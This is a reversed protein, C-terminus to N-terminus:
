RKLTITGRYNNAANQNDELYYYYIGEPLQEGAFSGDWDNSYNAAKDFVLDGNASFINLRYNSYLQVNEISWTDNRGDGNPSFYSAVPLTQEIQDEIIIEVQATDKLGAADSVEVAILYNDQVEYDFSRNSTLLGTAADIRFDIVSNLLKFSLSDGADIDSAVVQGVEAGVAANEIVAFLQAEITPAENGNELNIIVAKELSLGAADTTRLRLSYSSQSEFDFNIMNQLENGAIMFSANDDDGSGAVLEYTFSDNKDEDVTSLLAIRSGPLDNENATTDSLLIDSPADNQNIIRITYASEVFLGDQDTSRIRVSRRNANNFALVSDVELIAGNIRFLANDASGQGPVLTYTHNDTADVDQTAINAVFSGIPSAELISDSSISLGTPADNTDLVNLTLQRSYTAGAQDRTQVEIIYLNKTEFDIPVATRLENGSIIFSANDNSAQNAFSYSFQDTSDKDETSLASVTSGVAVNENFSNPTLVINTPADNSNTINITFNQEVSLGGQDTSRLRINHVRQNNYDFLVNSKLENSSIIFNGNDDDGSGPVLQYTFTQSPDIDTTNFTGITTNLVTNEPTSANSISIASPPDNVDQVFILFEREFWKNDQDSTRLRVSLQNKVLVDFSANSFLSDSSIIFSGNDTDGTGPVLTYTFNDVADEDTTRLLGIFEGAAQKEDVSNASLLVDTPADNTDKVNVFLQRSYTGGNGDDTQVQIFYVNKAEFDLSSALRLEDGAIIFNANDNTSLNVFSYTHNDMADADVTSFRGVSSNAPLNENISDPALSIDTPADNANTINIVFQAEATDGALDTTRVRINYATQLNVNYTTNTKLDGNQIYFSANDADGAGVVLAYTHNDVTDPDQTSFSGVTTNRSVDEQISNNDLTLTTPADNANIINITFAKETFLNLADSSRLRISYRNRQEYNFSTSAFLSDSQITFDGNDAAGIGSVLSYTFSDNADEDISSLTGIFNGNAANEAITNNSLIIDTPGDATDKVSITFQKTFTGGNGDDTLINVFYSSKFEFNFTAATRLENGLIAFSANDNNTGTLTYNHSDGADPDVTSLTGVLTNFPLSEYVSDNSLQIDTPADNANTINITLVKEFFDSGNDTTRVRLSYVTQVNVDFTANTRLNNGQITFSGNDTDGTGPVLSYTHADVTDPDTTSFAGVITNNPVDEAITNNDISIDLPADNANTVRISFIKNTLLGGADSSRLRISYNAKQEYNFSTSAFLSDNSISFSANDSGGSGSVLTYSFNDSVDQDVSSLSGVYNGNANNEAITNNDLLIDTPADNTDKVIISFQKSYLGGNGDSAEINVFYINKAEFNFTRATRLENGVIAFSGNDNNTGQLSFSHTDGTDPDIASLFGISANSVLNETVSDNSIIINTPADNSNTITLMFVKQYVGGFGDDAQVRISYNSQVNIDFATAAILQNSSINFALNNSDGVGSVLSLTHNDGADPDNVTFTGVASGISSSEPILSTSLSIDTPINNVDKVTLTFEKSYTGGNGDNTELRISQSAQVNIDLVAATFLSDNRITFNANDADGVGNVLNYSFSDGFDEDTSQLSAVFSGIPMNENVSQTSLSIGTPADNADTINIQIQESYVGGQSDTTRVNIFYTNQQEFDFSQRARLSNGVINFLANDNGTVTEFSYTFTEGSDEDTSSFVGVTSNSGANEAISDSPLLIDTPLDNADLVNIQASKQFTNNAGDTVQLRIAYVNQQEFNFSSNANLQNGSISFSGNDTSGTGSVLAYTFTENLDTDVASLSAVLTGAAQNEQISSTNLLIDTPTENQDVINITYSSDLFCGQSDTVRVRILYTSKSEFDGVFGAILSDTTISFLSNDASGTGSVLAYTHSQMADLDQTSFRGILTGVAQSEDLQKSNLNLDTPPNNNKIVLPAAANGYIANDQFAVTDVSNYITNSTADYFRFSVEEGNVVNSYITMNAQFRGNIVTSSNASGRLTGSVFAGLQNAPNTLEQCNLDLVATVTMSYQFANPNVTWTPAQAQVFSYSYLFATILILKFKNM